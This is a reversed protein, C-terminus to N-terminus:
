TLLYSSHIEKVQEIVKEVQEMRRDRPPVKYNKPERINSTDLGALSAIVALNTYPLGGQIGYGGGLMAIIKEDCLRSATEVAINMMQAYGQATIGLRTIPDTFHNDQGAQVVLVDPDFREALPVFIENVVKLYGADSTGPPLPVNVTYGRGEGGGVEQPFGTGPFLTRGDQHTSIGLVSPDDYFIEQTGDFHHADWDWLPVREVNYEDQIHKIMISVNNTFCFGHGHDPHAHHGGPRAMVFSHDVKGEMVIRGGLIAGGAALKAQEYTIEQMITEGERDIATGGERKAMAKLKEIYEKTHVRLLERESAKTPKYLEVQPLEFIGEERLQDMTYMLRERREPHTPSHEHLLYNRHYVVGTNGEKIRKSHSEDRQFQM